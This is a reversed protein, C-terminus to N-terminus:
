AFAKAFASDAPAYKLIAQRLEAVKRKGSLSVDLPKKEAPTQIALRYGLFEKHLEVRTEDTWAFSRTRCPFVLDLGEVRFCVRTPQALYVCLTTVFASVNALAGGLYTEYDIGRWAAM